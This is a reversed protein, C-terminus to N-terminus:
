LLNENWCLLCGLPRGCSPPLVRYPPAFFLLATIIKRPILGYIPSTSTLRLCLRGEKRCVQAVDPDISGTMGQEAVTVSDHQYQVLLDKIKLPLHEDIKCRM